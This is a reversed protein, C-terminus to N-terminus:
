RWLIHLNWFIISTYAALCISSICISLGPNRRHMSWLYAAALMGGLLKITLFADEEVWCRLFPNGEFAFENFVLFRTIVGDAVVAALLAGLLIRIKYTGAFYAKTEM